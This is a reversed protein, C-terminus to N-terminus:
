TDLIPQVVARFTADTELRARVEAERAPSLTGNALDLAVDVYEDYDPSLEPPINFDHEKM